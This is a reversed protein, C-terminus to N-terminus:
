ENKRFYEEPFPAQPAADPDRLPFRPGRDELLPIEEGGSASLLAWLKQNM